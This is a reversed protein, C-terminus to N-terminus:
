TAPTGFTKSSLLSGVPNVLEIIDGADDWFQTKRCAYYTSGKRSVKSTGKRCGTVIKLQRGAKLKTKRLRIGHGDNDRLVYNRLNLAKRGRNRITVSETAADGAPKIKSIVLTSSSRAKCKGSKWAAIERKIETKFGPAYVTSDPPVQALVRELQARTFRCSTINEDPQYDKLVAEFDTSAGAAMGPILLLVVLAAALAVAPLTARDNAITHV